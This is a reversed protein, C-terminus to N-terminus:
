CDHSTSKSSHSRRIARPAPALTRAVKPISDQLCNNRRLVLSVWLLSFVGEGLFSCRFNGSRKRTGSPVHFIERMHFIEIEPFRFFCWSWAESLNDSLRIM